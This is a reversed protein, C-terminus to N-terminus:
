RSLKKLIACFDRDPEIRSAHPLASLPVWELKVVDDGNGELSPVPAAIDVLYYFYILQESPYVPNAYFNETHHLLKIITAPVRTEEQFERRLGEGPGEGLQVGGGPFNLIVGKKTLTHTMLVNDGSFVVGYASVRFKEVTM